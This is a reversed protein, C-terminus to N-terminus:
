RRTASPFIDPQSRAMIHHRHRRRGRTELMTLAEVALRRSRQHRAVTRQAPSPMAVGAAVAEQGVAAPRARTAPDCVTRAATILFGAWLVLTVVVTLSTTVIIIATLLQTMFHDSQIHSPAHLRCVKWEHVNSLFGIHVRM